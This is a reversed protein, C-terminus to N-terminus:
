RGVKQRMEETLFMKDYIMEAKFASPNIATYYFAEKESFGLGRLQHYLEKQQEKNENIKAM